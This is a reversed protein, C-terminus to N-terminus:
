RVTYPATIQVLNAERLFTQLDEALQPEIVSTPALIDLSEIKLLVPVPRTRDASM